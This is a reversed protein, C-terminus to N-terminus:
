LNADALPAPSMLEEIEHEPVLDGAYRVAMTNLSGPQDLPKGGLLIMPEGRRMLGRSLVMRDVIEAFGSRHEPVDKVWIPYVGYLLNMRRVAKLDTSFAIIPANFNNRSLLRAGSGRQSWAVILKAGIDRSVHWAGHAVAAMMAGSETIRGPPMPGSPNQRWHDETACAVRRMTEVALHPYRGVATEASLMVCDAGDLIANAVDSVEARTPTASKIMSELMQTAVIVPKGHEHSVKILRKQSMPVTAVDMEVGLDGRAVMLADAYKLIGEIREVAQPTEIKAIIPITPESYDSLPWGCARETCTRHLYERLERVDDEARVFSMALYDLENKIAWDVCSWDKETLAPVTLESDPLNIGKGTTVLGGVVVRCRIEGTLKEVCLMRIHGDNILVRDGPHVEQAVNPYTAGLVPVEGDEAVATDIRIIVDQGPRLTIGAPPVKTVRIKPGSLDGVIAVSTHISRSVMRIMELRSKHEEFSGHSFNLRFLRAGNEMMKQIVDPHSISPGVTALIKTLPPQWPTGKQENTPMSLAHM